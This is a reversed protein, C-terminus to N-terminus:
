TMSTSVLDDRVQAAAQGTFQLRGPGRGAGLQEEGRAIVRSMQIM